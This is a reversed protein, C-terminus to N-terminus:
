TVLALMAEAKEALAGGESCLGAYVARGGCFHFCRYLFLWEGASHWLSFGKVDNWSLIVEKVRGSDESMQGGSGQWVAIRAAEEICCAAEVWM